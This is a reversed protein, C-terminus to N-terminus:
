SENKIKQELDLKFKYFEHPDPYNESFITKYDEIFTKSNAAPNYLLAHVSELFRLKIFDLIKNDFNELNRNKKNDWIIKYALDELHNEFCFLALYDQKSYQQFDKRLFLADTSVIFGFRQPNPIFNSNPTGGGTYDLNAVIFDLDDLFKFIKFHNGSDYFTLNFPIEVRIGIVNQLTEKAGKLVELEYGETDIKIFYPKVGIEKSILDVTNIPIIEQDNIRNQYHRGNRFWFSNNIPPLISSLGKHELINLKTTGTSDGLATKLVTYNPNSKYMKQLEVYGSSEPEFAIMKILNLDFTRKWSPHVGYRAGIDFVTIM